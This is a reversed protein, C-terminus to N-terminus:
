FFFYIYITFLMDLIRLVSGRQLNIVTSTRLSHCFIHSPSHIFGDTVISGSTPILVIHLCVICRLLNFVITVPFGGSVFTRNRLLHFLHKRLWINNKLTCMCTNYFFVFSYYSFVALHCLHVSSLVTKNWHEAVKFLAFQLRM